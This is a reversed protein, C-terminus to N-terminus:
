GARALMGIRKIALVWILGFVAFMVSAVIWAVAPFRIAIVIGPLVLVLNIAQYFLVVQGHAWGHAILQQYLHQKHANYWQEGKIVRMALTLSSDVLFVMMIMLAVAAGFSQIAVGYVLLAAIAFGLALSGSDGMFVRARGMNWPLFGVCSAALLAAAMSSVNESALGFLTALVLGAFVGQLGAMGNSGDMFNYLNTMWVLFFVALVLEFASVAWGGRWLFWLFLLSVAFQVLIRLRASLSSHDDWWGLISIALTGPLAFSIWFNGDAQIFWVSSVTLALVLGAGGGRPTISTHSQREGPHDLLGRRKAYWTALGTCIFSLFITVTIPIEPSM